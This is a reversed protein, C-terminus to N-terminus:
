AQPGSNKFTEWAKAVPSKTIKRTLPSNSHTVSQFLGNM